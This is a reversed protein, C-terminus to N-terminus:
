KVLMVGLHEIGNITDVRMIHRVTIPQGRMINSISATSESFQYSAGFGQGKWRGYIDALVLNITDRHPRSNSDLHTVELWINSYPYNNTHRIAVAIHGVATSDDMEDTPFSITDGYAWGEKPLEKFDCFAVNKSGCSWTLLMTTAIALFAPLHRRMIKVHKVSNKNRRNLPNNLNGKSVKVAKNSLRGV